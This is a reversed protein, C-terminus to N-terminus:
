QRPDRAPAPLTQGPTARWPNIDLGGRRTYRAEVSLSQPRCRALLDVFIREVCQEHFEAHDRFSVLYRLLGDRGIRPGRYAIRVSAWDPQGTVPCNSKLLDSRLTEEVVADAAAVLYDRNPPGYDDIDLDLTDLLVGADAEADLPPLGARVAVPGGAAQSLDAAIRARVAAADDFRTANFANLYLKLSKSEILRPTDAPVTLTLTAVQPKGRPDLWSLEYAHWRDVGIFPLAAGDALGLQARGQARPIPYLLAPDYARPYAVARGLPLEPMTM